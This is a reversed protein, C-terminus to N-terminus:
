SVSIPRPHQAESVANPYIRGDFLYPCKVFAVVYELKQRRGVGAEPQNRPFALQSCTRADLHGYGEPREAEAPKRQVDIVLLSTEEGVFLNAAWEPAPKM